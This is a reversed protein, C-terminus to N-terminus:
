IKLLVKSFKIPSTNLPPFPVRRCRGEGVGWRVEGCPFEAPSAFFAAVSRGPDGMIMM